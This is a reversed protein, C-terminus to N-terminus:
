IVLLFSAGVISGGCGCSLFTTLTLRNLKFIFLIPTGVTGIGVGFFRTRMFFAIVRLELLVRQESFSGKACTDQEMKPETGPLGWIFCIELVTIM